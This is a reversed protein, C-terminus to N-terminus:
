QILNRVFKSKNYLFNSLMRKNKAVTQQSLSMIELPKKKPLSLYSAKGVTIDTADPSTATFKAPLGLLKTLNSHAAELGIQLQKELNLKKTSKLSPLSKVSALATGNFKRDQTKLLKFKDDAM